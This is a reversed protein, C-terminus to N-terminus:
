ILIQEQAARLRETSLQAYAAEREIGIFRHGAGLAAVGTTGSGAFPDLIVSNPECIRLLDAMLLSPKGTLHHKDAQRVVHSFVGPLTPTPRDLPMAGKSGWVVFEAQAAFRGRTPRCGGTKDWVAIGRWVFDAAQLADTMTPLQRWDSFLLIPAGERAVRHCEGLWLNCWHAFGRQDRNDGGFPPYVRKTDSNQYKQRATQTTRAASSSGGSNYPPDSVIADCSGDPLGRLVTLAEGQHLEFRNM